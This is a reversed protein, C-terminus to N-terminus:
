NRIALTLCVVVFPISLVQHRGPRDRGARRRDAGPVERPAPGLPDSRQHIRDPPGQAPARVADRGVPQRRLHLHRALLDCRPARPLPRLYPLAAPLEPLSRGPGVMPLAAARAFRKSVLNYTSFSVGKPRGTSGSTFMVTAVEDPRFRRRRALRAEVDRTGLQKCFETM